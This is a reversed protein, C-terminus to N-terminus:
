SFVYNEVKEVTNQKYYRWQCGYVSPIIQACAHNIWKENYSAGIHTMLEDKDEFSRIYVGDMSYQHYSTPEKSKRKTQKEVKRKSEKFAKMDADLKMAKEKKEIRLKMTKEKQEIRIAEKESTTLIKKMADVKEYSWQYGGAMHRKTGKSDLSGTAVRCINGVNAGTSKNAKNVSSHEGVYNGNLDYQYVTKAEM